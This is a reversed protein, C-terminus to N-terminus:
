ETITRFNFYIMPMLREENEVLRKSWGECGESIYIETPGASDTIKSTEWEKKLQEPDVRKGNGDTITLRSPRNILQTVWRLGESTLPENAGIKLNMGKFAVVYNLLAFVFGSQNTYNKVARLENGSLLLLAMISDNEAFYYLTTHDVDLRMINHGQFKSEIRSKKIIEKADMNLEGLADSYDIESIIHENFEMGGDKKITHLNELINLHGSIMGNGNGGGSTVWFNGGITDDANGAYYMKQGRVGAVAGADRIYLKLQKCRRKWFMLNYFRETDGDISSSIEQSETIIENIKM